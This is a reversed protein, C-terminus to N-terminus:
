ETVTIVAQKQVIKGEIDTARLTVTYEGPDEFVHVPSREESQSRDGFDWEWTDFGETSCSTDFRVGLPASGSTRSPIFCADRLPARVVLVKDANYTDGELTKVQLNIRYTGAREYLHETLAGLPRKVGDGFDWEYGTIRRGPIFTSSADFKVLAPAVPTAPNVEITVDSQPPKVRVVITQRLVKQEADVGILDIEWEGVQRFTAQLTKETSIVESAEPADWTFTVLPQSTQPTINLTLPQEGEVTFGKVEPTGTFRLDPLRLPQTVQVLKTVRAISGSQSRIVATVPFNGVRNFVRQAIHGEASGEDGFSWTVNAIAEDTEISFLVGFPATGLLTPPLTRLEVPFPQEPAEVVNLARVIETKANSAYTVVAKANVEGLRHYTYAVELADTEVDINGDGDFDWQARLFQEPDDFLHSLSFTAPEDLIPEGPTVSFVERTIRITRRLVRTEGSAMKVQASVRFVGSRPYYATIQPEPTLQDITGDGNFDWSYSQPSLGDQRFVALATETGYTVSIPAVLEIGQPSVIDVPLSPERNISLLVAGSMALAPLVVATVRVLSILLLKHNLNKRALIRQVTLAGVGLWLLAGFTYFMSGVGKLWWLEVNTTPFIALLLIGGILYAVLVAIIVARLRSAAKQQQPTLDDSSSATPARPAAPRNQPAPSVGDISPPSAPM